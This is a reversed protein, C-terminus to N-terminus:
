NKLLDILFVSEKGVSDGGWWFFLNVFSDPLSVLSIRSLSM